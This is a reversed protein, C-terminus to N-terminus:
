PRSGGREKEALVGHLSDHAQALAPKLRIASKFQPIAADLDESLLLVYGLSNHAEANSPLLKVTQEFKARATALDKEKLAEIGAAYSENARQDASTQQQAARANSAAGVGASAFCVITVARILILYFGSKAMQLMEALDFENWRLMRDQVALIPIPM